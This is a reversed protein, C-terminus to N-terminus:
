FYPSHVRLAEILMRPVPVMVLLLILFALFGLWLRRHGVPTLDNLPPTGRGAIFFILLAWVLLGPWVFIGLLVLSWMAIVSIIMGGRSGFMARAIHGGDLQGIPLLNLGTIFLGLWGAFALPGLQVAGGPPLADGLSLKALLAFLISSGTSTGQTAADAEVATLVTSYHLGVLLAPIAIILGAFPGAVAVDFLMRRNESPSRMQIFAGFTGLAFPVPVFYPPTVDMQYRRAVWYHGLEHVGLIALLTLSYPLGVAFRGPEALLNVGAQAAGAWTTTLLTLGFLLGHLWPRVRHEMTARELPRPLVIIAAGCREDKQLFPMGGPAFAPKLREFVESAAARLKGRFIQVGHDEEALHVEMVERVVPPQEEPPLMRLSKETRERQARNSLIILSWLLLFWAFLLLWLWPGAPFVASGPLSFLFFLLGLVLLVTVWRVVASAPLPHTRHINM